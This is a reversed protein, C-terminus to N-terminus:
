HYLMQSIEMALDLCETVPLCIDCVSCDCVFCGGCLDCSHTVTLLPHMTPPECGCLSWVCMHCGRFTELLCDLPRCFLCHLLVAACIDVGDAESHVRATTLSEQGGAPAFSPSAEPLRKTEASSPLLVHLPRPQDTKVSKTSHIYEADTWGTKSNTQVDHEAPSDKTGSVPASSRGTNDASIQESLSNVDTLSGTLTTANDNSKSASIDSYPIMPMEEDKNEDMTTSYLQDEMM